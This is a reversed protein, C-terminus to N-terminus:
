DFALCPDPRDHPLGLWIFDYPEAAVEADTLARETEIMGVSLVTLRPHVAAIYVPVGRDTRAHGNGTILVAQGRRSEWARLAAGAFSADRLRQVEVMAPAAAAPLKGCHATVMEEEMETQVAAPQPQALFPQFRGDPVALYAGTAAAKRILKQPLAGGAIVADEPLAEFIPRYLSWAPWGMREWGIAPGIESADAGEAMLVAIGEESRYPIMEAALAPPQLREVIWAQRAHHDPNDHVEGLVVIDAAALRRALDEASIRQGTATDLIEGDPTGTLPGPGTCAALTLATAAILAALRM